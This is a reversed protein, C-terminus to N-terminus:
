VTHQLYESYPPPPEKLVTGDHPPPIDEPATYVPPPSDEPETNGPPSLPVSDCFLPPAYPLIIVEQLRRSGQHRNMNTADLTVISDAAVVDTYKPPEASYDPCHFDKSWNRQPRPQDVTQRRKNRAKQQQRVAVVVIAFVVVVCGVLIGMYLAENRKNVSKNESYRQKYVDIKIDGTYKETKNWPQFEAIVTDCQKCVAQHQIQGCNYYKNPNEAFYFRFSRRCANYGSYLKVCMNKGPYSVDYHKIEVVPECPKGLTDTVVEGDYNLILSDASNRFTLTTKCSGIFANSTVIGTCKTYLTIVCLVFLELALLDM